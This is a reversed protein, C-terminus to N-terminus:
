PNSFFFKLIKKSKSFSAPSGLDFWGDKIKEIRVRTLNALLNIAETIEYEKRPSLSIKDVVDFILPTFKYLGVNVLNTKPNKPKELIKKLFGKENPYVIGYNEPRPHPFVGLCNGKIQGITKLDRVSYLCDGNLALFSKKLFGKRKLAKLPCATGYEKRGLIEFQDILYIDLPVLEKKYKKLFLEIKEKQYGVVLFIKKIGAKKLNSLLYFLFPHKKFRLVHKPSFRTLAGMRSGKGASFVISELVM